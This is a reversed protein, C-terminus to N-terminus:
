LKADTSYKVGVVDFTKYASDFSIQRDLGLFVGVSGCAQRMASPRTAFYCRGRGTVTPPNECLWRRYQNCPRFIRCVQLQEHPPCPITIRVCRTRLADPRTAAQTAPIRPVPTACACSRLKWKSIALSDRDCASRLKACTQPCSTTKVSSM